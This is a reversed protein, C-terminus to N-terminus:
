PLGEVHMPEGLNGSDTVMKDQQKVVANAITASVGVAPPDAMPAPMESPAINAVMESPAVKGLPVLPNM